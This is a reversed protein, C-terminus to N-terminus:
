SREFELVDFAAVTPRVWKGAIIEHAIERLADAALEKKYSLMAQQASSYRGWVIVGIMMWGGLSVLGDL